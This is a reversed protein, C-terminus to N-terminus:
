PTESLDPSIKVWGQTNDAQYVSEDWEYHRAWMADEETLEPRPIPPDWLGTTTNLTWSDCGEPQPPHFIDHESNYYWGIEPMNARFPTRGECHVGGSTNISCRLWTEHGHNQRLHECGIEERELGGSTCSTITDMYVTQMVINNLGIKAFHSM